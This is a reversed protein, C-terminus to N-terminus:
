RRMLRRLSLASRGELRLTLDGLHKTIHTPSWTAEGMSDILANMATEYLEVTRGRLSEINSFYHDPGIATLKFYGPLASATADNFDEVQIVCPKELLKKAGAIVALEHGEVDIKLCIPEPLQGLSDLTIAPVKISSKFGDHLATDLVANDGAFDSVVGFVVEGNHDSVAAQVVEIHANNLLINARLEETAVPNAEIAVCRELKPLQTAFLSYAGIMAGVDLFSRCGAEEALALLYFPQVTEAEAM